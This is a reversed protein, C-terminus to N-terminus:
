DYKDLEVIGLDEVQKKLSKQRQFWQKRIFVYCFTWMRGVLISIVKKRPFIKCRPKKIRDPNEWHKLGGFILRRADIYINLTDRFM